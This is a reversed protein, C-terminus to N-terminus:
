EGDPPRQSAAIAALEETLDIGVPCWAICRGCGVCGSVGFQDIWGAVKHVLWQRYRDRITPRFCLGHIQGHDRNFCSDWERMRLSGAGDLRPEDREDHCFCTPCVLTCNGCSLCREGVEDWRAHELNAYLLERPDRPELRRQMGQACAALEAREQECAAPAAAALPLERLLETGAASGARVLFGDDLESLALDHGGSIEPGTGVSVCFCTAAPRSCNVGILLLGRRRAAYYPDPYRDRLFTRDQVGLAALDCARVGLVAIREPEALQPQARLGEDGQWEIQLLPERPAFVLPKLSGPGNVVGFWRPGDSRTLRYSGPAQEDRWGSALEDAGQIEEFRQVGDRVLPALVRYGRGRLAALLQPFDERALWRSESGEPM